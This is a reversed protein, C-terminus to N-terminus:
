ELTQFDSSLFDAPCVITSLEEGKPFCFTRGKARRFVAQMVPLENTRYCFIAECKESGFIDGIIRFNIQGFLEKNRCSWNCIRTLGPAWTETGPLAQFGFIVKGKGHM